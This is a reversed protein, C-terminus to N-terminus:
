RVAMFIYELLVALALFAIMVRCERDNAGWVLYDYIALSVPVLIIMASMQLTAYSFLVMLLTVMASYAFILIMVRSHSVSYEANRRFFAALSVAFCIVLTVTKFVRAASGAGLGVYPSVACKLYQSVAPALSRVDATAFKYTLSLVLPLLFGALSMVAFRPKDPAPFFNMILLFLAVWAIPPFMLSAVALLASYFFAWDENLDGGYFRAAMYFAANVALACWMGSDYVAVAPFSLAIIAFVLPAAHNISVAFFDVAMYALLANAALLILGGLVSVFTLPVRCCVFTSLIYLAVTVIVLIYM